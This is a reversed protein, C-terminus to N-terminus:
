PDSALDGKALKALLAPDAQPLFTTRKQQVVDSPLPPPIVSPMQLKGKVVKPKKTLGMDGWVKGIFMDAKMTQVMGPGITTGGFLPIQGAGLKTGLQTVNMLPGPKYPGLPKKADLKKINAAVKKGQDWANM